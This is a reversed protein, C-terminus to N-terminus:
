KKVLKLIMTERYFRSLLLFKARAKLRKIYVPRIFIIFKSLDLIIELIDRIIVRHLYVKMSFDQSLLYRDFNYNYIYNELTYRGTSEVHHVVSTGTTWLISTKRGAKLCFDADEGISNGTRREDFNINGIRNLYISLSLGPVWDTITDKSLTYIGQAIGNKLLKGQRYIPLTLKPLNTIKAGVVGINENSNLLKEMTHFYNSAVEVDDDLFHLIRINKSRAYKLIINRQITLGPLSDFYVVNFSEFNDANNRNIIAIDSQSSDCIILTISQRAASDISKM